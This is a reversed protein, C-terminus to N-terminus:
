KFHKKTISDHPLVFHARPSVKSQPLSLSGLIGQGEESQASLPPAPSHFSCPLAHNILALLCVSPVPQDYRLGPLPLAQALGWTVGPAGQCGPKAELGKGEREQSQDQPHLGQDRPHDGPVDKKVKDKKKAVASTLALLALLSLLLFGRHQTRPCGHTRESATQAAENKGTGPRDREPRGTIKM